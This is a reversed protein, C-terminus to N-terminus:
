IPLIDPHILSNKARESQLLEDSYHQNLVSKANLFLDQNEDKFARWSKVPMANRRKTIIRIIADTMTHNFKDNAGLSEAYAKIGSCIIQIAAETDNNDLTLWALRLHGAHNFHVPDLTKDHFQKLFDTDSLAANSSNDSM